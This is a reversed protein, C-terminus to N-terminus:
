QDTDVGPRAVEYPAGTGSSGLFIKKGDPYTVDRGNIRRTGDKAQYGFVVVKTGPKLQDRSFGRRMLANPSGGEVGWNEVTGDPKKVDIFIWTHPNTLTLKTVTADKFEIPKNGDFEAIFSHHAGLPVQALFLAIGFAVITRVTLEARM